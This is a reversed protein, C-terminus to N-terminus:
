PVSKHLQKVQFILRKGCNHQHSLQTIYSCLALINKIKKEMHPKSTGSKENMGNQTQKIHNSQMCDKEPQVRSEQTNNEEKKIFNEVAVPSGCSGCFKNGDAIEKGCQTCFM